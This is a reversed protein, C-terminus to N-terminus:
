DAVVVMEVKPKLIAPVVLSDVVEVRVALALLEERFLEVVAVAVLRDGPRDLAVAAVAVLPLSPELYLLEGMLALLAKGKFVELAV